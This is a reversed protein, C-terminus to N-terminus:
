VMVGMASPFFHMAIRLLVFTYVGAVLDDGVVGWGGPVRKEVVNAPFIKAIDIIREAFFGLVVIQWTVVPLFAMAVFFGALEDWVLKRSDKEGLLKDGLDHIWVSVLTFIITLAVYAWAPLMHMLLFLPVGAVAVAVTGSAPMHGLPGISGVLLLRRGHGDREQEPETSGPEAQSTEIDM